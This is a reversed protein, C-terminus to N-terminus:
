GELLKRLSALGRSVRKRVVQEDGGASAAIDAYSAEDVVRAIVADRYADPLAELAHSLGAM